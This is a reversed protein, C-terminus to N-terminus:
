LVAPLTIDILLELNWDPISGAVELCTACHRLWSRWWKSGNKSVNMVNPHLVILHFLGLLINHSFFM